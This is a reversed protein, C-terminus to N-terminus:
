RKGHPKGLWGAQMPDDLMGSHYDSSYQKIQLAVKTWTTEDIVGMRVDDLLIQGLPIMQGLTLMPSLDSSEITVCVPREGISFRLEVIDGGERIIVACRDWKVCGALDYEVFRRLNRTMSNGMSAM